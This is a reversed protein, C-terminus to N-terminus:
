GERRERARRGKGDVGCGCEPCRRMVGTTGWCNRLRTLAEGCEPCRQRPLLLVLLLPGLVGGIIGAFIGVIIGISLGEAM